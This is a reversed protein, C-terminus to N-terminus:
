KILPKLTQMKLKHTSFDTSNKKTNNIPAYVVQLQESVPLEMGIIRTATTIDLSNIFTISPDGELAEEEYLMYREQLFDELSSILSSKVMVSYVSVKGDDFVIILRPANTSYEDYVMVFEGELHPNGFKSIISKKTEGFEIDPEDYVTHRPEVIVKINKSDEGNSLTIETEGVFRATVLGEESVDAHYRNEVAYTIDAISTAQIQYTDTSYMKKELVDMQIIDKKDEKECSTFAIAM